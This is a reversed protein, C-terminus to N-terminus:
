EVAHKVLICSSPSLSILLHIIRNVAYQDYLLVIIYLEKHQLEFYKHAM